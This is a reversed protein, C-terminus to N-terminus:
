ATLNPHTPLDLPRGQAVTSCEGTPRRRAGRRMLHSAGAQKCSPPRATPPRGAGRGPPSRCLLAPTPASGRDWSRWGAQWSTRDPWDCRRHAPRGARPTECSIRLVDAAAADRPSLAASARRLRGVDPIEEVAHQLDVGSSAKACNTMIGARCSRRSPRRAPRTSRHSAHHAAATGSRMDRRPALGKRVARDAIDAGRQQRRVVQGRQRFAMRDMDRDERGGLGLLSAGASGRNREDRPAVGRDVEHVIGSFESRSRSM